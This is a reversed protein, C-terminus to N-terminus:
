QTSREPYTGAPIGWYLDHTVVEGDVLFGWNQCREGALFLTWTDPQVRVIRHFDRSTLTNMSGAEYYLAFDDKFHHGDGTLREETYGGHLIFSHSLAWPHNHLHRDNDARHIHHLMLRGPGDPLRPTLLRTMYETDDNGVITYAHYNDNSETRKAAAVLAELFQVPPPKPLFLSM